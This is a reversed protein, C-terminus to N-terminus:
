FVGMQSMRRQREMLEEMEFLWKHVDGDGDVAKVWLEFDLSLPSTIGDVCRFSAIDAVFMHNRKLSRRM